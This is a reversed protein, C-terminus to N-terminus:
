HCVFTIKSSWQGDQMWSSSMDLTNNPQARLLTWSKITSKTKNKFNAKAISLNPKAQRHRRNINMHMCVYTYTHAHMHIHKSNQALASRVYVGARSNSNSNHGSSRGSDANGCRKKLSTVIFNWEFVNWAQSRDTLRIAGSPHGFGSAREISLVFCRVAFDFSIAKSIM